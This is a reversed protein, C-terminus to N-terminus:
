KLTKSFRMKKHKFKPKRPRKIFFVIILVIATIGFLTWGSIHLSFPVKKGSPATIKQPAPKFTIHSAVLENEAILKNNYSYTIKGLLAGEKTNLDLYEPLDLTTQLERAKVSKPALVSQDNVVSIECTGAEYLKGSKVSYMPLTLLVDGRKHLALPQYNDFGFDLLAATDQYISQKEGKLIVAILDIDGRRAVTVLTNRAQDTYGTKGGIVDQRYIKSDRLKNLMKHDQSLYRIENSKNTPPIQYTPTQMIDLFYDNNYVAKTILAMDYATTYHNDDHLGHPNLFNTNQAGLEKAKKTMKLAFQDISGSIKEALGNAVENGSMLLLGHLAQDVTIQEGVYIGIRSCNWEIGHVAEQSFSVIDTPKLNEIALLATMLKTISAPYNKEYANKEYLIEGTKADMLIASGAQIQPATSSETDPAAYSIWPLATILCIVLLLSLNRNMVNKKM